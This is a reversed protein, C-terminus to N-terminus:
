KVTDRLRNLLFVCRCSIEFRQGFDHTLGKAFICIKRSKFIVKKYDLFCPKRELVNNFLIALHKKFLFLSAHFNLNKVLIM